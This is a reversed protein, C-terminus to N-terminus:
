RRVKKAIGAKPPPAVSEGEILRLTPNSLASLFLGDIGVVM